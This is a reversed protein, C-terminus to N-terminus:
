RIQGRLKGGPLPYTVSSVNVYGSNNIVASILTTNGAVVKSIGFETPSNVLTYISTGNTGVGGQHITATTAPDASSNNYLVVKSFLRNDSTIRLLAMGTTSTSIPVPVVNSGSLAIKKSFVFQTNLQARAIGQPYSNTFVCFYKDISNNLLIDIIAQNVNVRGSIYTGSVRPALNLIVAGESVPDGLNISAGLVSESLQDFKIDFDMTYDSYLKMSLTGKGAITGTSYNANETTVLMNWEKTLAPIVNYSNKKCGTFMIASLLLTFTLTKRIQIIMNM